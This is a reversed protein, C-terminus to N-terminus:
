SPMVFEPMCVVNKRSPKAAATAIAIGRSVTDTHFISFLTLLADCRVFCM